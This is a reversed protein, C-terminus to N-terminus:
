QGNETSAASATYDLKAFGIARQQNRYSDLHKPDFPARGTAIRAISFQLLETIAQDDITRASRLVEARRQLATTDGTELELKKRYEDLLNQKIALEDSPSFPFEKRLRDLLKMTADLVLYPEQRQPGLETFELKHIDKFAKKPSRPWHLSTLMKLEPESDPLKIVNAEINLLVDAQDSWDSLGRQDNFSAPEIDIHLPHDHFVAKLARHFAEWTGMLEARENSNYFTFPLVVYVPTPKPPPFVMSSTITVVIITSVMWSIRLNKKIKQVIFIILATTTVVLVPPWRRNILFALNFVGSVLTLWFLWPTKSLLDKIKDIYLDVFAEGIHYVFFVAAIGIISLTALLPGDSLVASFESPLSGSLDVFLRKLWRTAVELVGSDGSQLLLFTSIQM